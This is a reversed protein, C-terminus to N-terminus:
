QATNKRICMKILPITSTMSLSYSFLDSTDKLPKSFTTLDNLFDLEHAHLCLDLHGIWKLARQMEQKAREAFTASLAIHKVSRLKRRKKNM